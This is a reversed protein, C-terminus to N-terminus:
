WGFVELMAVDGRGSAGLERAVVVHYCRGERRPGWRLRRLMNEEASLDMEAVLM